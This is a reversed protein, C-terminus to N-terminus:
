FGWSNGGFGGGLFLFEGVLKQLLATLVKSLQIVIKVFLYLMLVILVVVSIAVMRLLVITTFYGTSVPFTDPFFVFNANCIQGAFKDRLAEFIPM